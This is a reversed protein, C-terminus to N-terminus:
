SENKIFLGEMKREVVKYRQYIGEWSAYTKNASKSNWEKKINEWFAKSGKQPPGGKDQVFYFLKVQEESLTKSKRINLEQRYQDYIKKLEKPSLDATHIEIKISKRSLSQKDRDTHDNRSPLEAQGISLNTTVRPLVPELGTLIYVNLATRTFGTAKSISKIKRSLNYLLTGPQVWLVKIGNKTPILIDRMMFPVITKEQEAIQNILKKTSVAVPNSSEMDLRATTEVWSLASELDDYFPPEPAGLFEERVQKVWYEIKNVLFDSSVLDQLSLELDNEMSLLDDEEKLSNIHIRKALWFIDQMRDLKLTGDIVEYLESAKVLSSHGQLEPPANKELKKFVKQRAM